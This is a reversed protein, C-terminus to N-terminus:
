QIILKNTKLVKNNKTLCGFYVGKSLDGLYLETKDSSEVSIEKVNNGLVDIIRLITNKEANHIFTTKEKTPNPFFGIFSDSSISKVSSTGENYLITMCTRDNPNTNPFFCYEITASSLDCFANYTGKFDVSDEEGPALTNFSTSIYDNHGYCLGGWCFINITGATTDIITKECLIDITNNSINKVKLHSDTGICPDSSPANSSGTLMISQGFFVSSQFVISFLIVIKKM